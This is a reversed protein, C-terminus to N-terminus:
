PAAYLRLEHISYYSGPVGELVSLRLRDATVPKPLVIRFVFTKPKFIQAEYYRLEPQEAIVGHDEDGHFATLQFSVPVDTVRAPAEIELAVIPEPRDLQVEFYQGREQYRRGTWYTEMRGDLAQAAAEPRLNATAKLRTQDILRVGSPLEPMPLLDLVKQDRELLTFVSHSGHEFALQYRDPRALLEQKLNEQGRRLDEGFIVLRKTGIALLTRRASESPLRDLSRRALETVPPQWSSQGNVFRHKHYLALYNHLAMGADSQFVRRGTDQPAFAILDDKPLTAVFDLAPPSGEAAWVREVPHPFSRLEYGVGLLLIATVVRQAGPGRLRSLLWAGGMGALVCLVFTTMIAQRSVKRIGNFGPFYTHFYYYLGRVPAGNWDFPHLGLFMTLGILFVALYLGRRGRFPHPLNRRAIVVAAAIFTIVGPLMSHNALTVAVTAVLTLVWALLGSRLREKPLKGLGVFLPVFLASLVLATATFGPFAIEDHPGDALHHMATLTRNTPHVNAFFSLKGDNASAYAISRELAFSHREAFYPYVILLGLTGTTVAGAGFWLYFPRGPRHRFLLLAGAVALLPILFMTYYLCTGIQLLICVWFALADRPRQKEIARHLFYFIAPIWQVASLQIRGLEFFVYPSFAYMVGSLLGAAGSGTLHRVLLYMFYVALALSCLLTLNYAWIPKSTLLYFPAFLLSLGFHNENFVISRPLPAFYYDDYFGLPGIGLAADIRSGMIMANTYADWYYIARLVVVGADKALPWTMLLTIFTAACLVALHRSLPTRAGFSPLFRLSKM